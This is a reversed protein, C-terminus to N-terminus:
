SLIPFKERLMNYFEDGCFWPFDPIGEVKIQGDIVITPVVRIKYKEIKEKLSASMNNM